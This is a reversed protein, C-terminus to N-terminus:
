ELIRIDDDETNRASDCPELYQILTHELPEYPISWLFTGLASNYIVQKISPDTFPGGLLVNFEIGDKFAGIITKGRLDIPVTPPAGIPTVDSAATFEDEGGIGYYDWTGVTAFIDNDTNINADVTSCRAIAYKRNGEESYSLSNIALRKGDYDITFNSSVVRSKEYRFTVRYDYTWIPQQQGSYMQGSRQEVKAWVTYTVLLLAIPGGGEDQTSGWSRLTIRRNLQGIEM